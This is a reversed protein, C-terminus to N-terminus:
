HVIHVIVYMFSVSLNNKVKGSYYPLYTIVIMFVTVSITNQSMPAFVGIIFICKLHMKFFKFFQVFFEQYADSCEIDMWWLKPTLLCKKHGTYFLNFAAVYIAIKYCLFNDTKRM